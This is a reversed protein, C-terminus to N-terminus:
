GDKGHLSPSACQHVAAQSFRRRPECSTIIFSLSSNPTRAICLAVVSSVLLVKCRGLMPMHVFWHNPPQVRPPLLHHRLGQRDARRRWSRAPVRPVLRRRLQARRRVRAVRAGPVRRRRGPRGPRALGQGAPQGRAGHGRRRRGLASRARRLHAARLPKFLKLTDHCSVVPAVCQWPACIHPQTLSKGAQPLHFIAAPGQSAQFHCHRWPKRVVIGYPSGVAGVAPPPLPSPRPLNRRARNETWTEPPTALSLSCVTYAVGAPSPECKFNFSPTPQETWVEFLYVVADPGERLSPRRPM